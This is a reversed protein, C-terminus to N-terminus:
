TIRERQSDDADSDWKLSLQLLGEMGKLNAVSTETAELM